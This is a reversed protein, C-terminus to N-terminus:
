NERNCYPCYYSREGNSNTWWMYDGCSPCKPIELKERMPETEEAAV